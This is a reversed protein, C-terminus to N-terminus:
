LNIRAMRAMREAKAKEVEEELSLKRAPEAPKTKVVPKQAPKIQQSQAALKARGLLDYRKAIKEVKERVLAAVDVDKIGQESMQFFAITLAHNVSETLDARIDKDADVKLENAFHDILGNVQQPFSVHFERKAAEAEQRAREEDQIYREALKKEREIQALERPVNELREQDNKISEGVQQLNYKAFALERQIDRKDLDDANALKDELIAVRRDHERFQNFRESLRKEVAEKQSNLAAIRTDLEKLDPHPEPPPEPAKPQKRLEELEAKIRQNEESLSKNSGFTKYLTEALTKKATKDFPKGEFGRSKLLNRWEEPDENEDQSSTGAQADVSPSESEASVDPTSPSEVEETGADVAIEDM